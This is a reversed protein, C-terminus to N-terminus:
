MTSIVASWEDIIKCPWYPFIYRLTFQYEKLTLSYLFLVSQVAGFSHGFSSCSVKIEGLQGVFLNIQAYENDFILNSRFLLELAITTSPPLVSPYLPNKRPTMSSTSIAIWDSLGTYKTPANPPAVPKNVSQM